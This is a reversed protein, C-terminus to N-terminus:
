KRSSTRRISRERTCARDSACPSCARSFAFRRNKTNGQRWRVMRAEVASARDRGTVRPSDYYLGAGCRRASSPEPPRRRNRPAPPFWAVLDANQVLRIRHAHAFTRAQVTFDGAAVYIADDADRAVCAAHLDALPRIGTRAVKFRKCGVLTSRQSKRAEFDVEGRDVRTVDYGEARLAAEVGTAFENWSMARVADLTREVKAASPVRFQRYAAISGVVLFPLAAFAGYFVWAPPLAAVAVVIVGAAIAFSIWWSSRMLIAFLSNEAMKLKLM